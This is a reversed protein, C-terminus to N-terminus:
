AQTDVTTGVPAPNGVVGSQRYTQVNKAFDGLDQQAQTTNGSQLATGLQSLATNPDNLVASPVNQTLSAYAQQAGSVNGSKLDTRLEHFNKRNAAQNPNTGSTYSSSLSSTVSMSM